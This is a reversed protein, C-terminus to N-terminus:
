QKKANIKNYLPILLEREYGLQTAKDLEQRADNFMKKTILLEALAVRYEATQPALEIAREIDIIALERQGEHSEINSRAYYYEANEPESDILIGILMISENLQGAKHYLLALSLRAKNNDPEISLLTNYDAYAKKYEQKNGYIYARMFLAHTNRPEILLTSNYDNLASDLQETEIYIRARQQLTATSKPNYRLANTYSIIADNKKGTSWQAHALNSYVYENLRNNPELAIAKQFAAIAESYQKNQISQEGQACLQEYSQATVTGCIILLTFIAYLRRM